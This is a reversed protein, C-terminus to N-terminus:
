DLIISCNRIIEVRVPGRVVAGGTVIVIAIIFVFGSNMNILIIILLALQAECWRAGGGGTPPFRPTSNPFM